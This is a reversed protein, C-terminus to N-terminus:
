PSLACYPAGAAVNDGSLRADNRQPPCLGRVGSPWCSSPAIRVVSQTIAAQATKGDTAAAWASVLASTPAGATFQTKRVVQTTGTPSEVPLMRSGVIGCPVAQSCDRVKWLSPTAGAPAPM